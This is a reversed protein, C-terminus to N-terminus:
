HHSRRPMYCAHSFLFLYIIKTPSIVGRRSAPEFIEVTTRRTTPSSFSIRHSVAYSPWETV